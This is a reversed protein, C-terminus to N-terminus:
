ISLKRGAEVTRIGADLEKLRFKKSRTLKNMKNELIEMDELVEAQIEQWKGKEEPSEYLM